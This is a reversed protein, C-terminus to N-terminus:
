AEERRVWIDLIVALGIIAGKIMLQYAYTMGMLTLGNSLVGIILAGGLAGVVTGYGGSFKTGGLVAAAIADLEWGTGSDPLGASLRGALILGSFASLFGSIIFVMVRVRKVNVGALSAAHAGGGTAYIHRGFVTKNLTYHGILLIAALYILVIPIPGINMTALDVFLTSNITIPASGPSSALSMGRLISMTVLTALFATVQVKVVMVGNIFGIVSGLVLCLAIVLLPHLGTQIGIASMMGTIGIIAGVSLDIEGAIIVYTMGFAVIAIMATQRVINMFNTFSLFHPTLYSFILILLVLGIFIIAQSQGLGKGIKKLVNEQNIGTGNTQQKEIKSTM